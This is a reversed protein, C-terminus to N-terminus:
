QEEKYDYRGVHSLIFVLYLQRCHWDSTEDEILM